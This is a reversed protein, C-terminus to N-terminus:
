PTATYTCSLIKTIDATNIETDPLNLEHGAIRVHGTMLVQNDRDVIDFVDANATAIAVGSIPLGLASAVGNLSNGFAPNAFDINVINILKTDDYIRIRGAGNTSGVDILDVTADCIVNRTYNTHTLTQPFFFALLRALAGPTTPSPSQLHIAAKPEGSSRLVQGSLSIVGPSAIIESTM